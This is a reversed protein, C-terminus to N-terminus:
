TEKTDEAVQIAELVLEEFTDLFRGANLEKDTKKLHVIWNAVVFSLASTIALIAAPPSIKGKVSALSKHITANMTDVINAFPAFIGQVDKKKSTDPQNAMSSYEEFIDM